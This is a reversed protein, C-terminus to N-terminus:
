TIEPNASKAPLRSVQGRGCRHWRCALWRSTLTVAAPKSQVADPCRGAPRRMRCAAARCDPPHRAAQRGAQLAHCSRGTVGRGAQRSGAAGVGRLQRGLAGHRRVHKLDRPHLRVVLERQAGDRGDGVAGGAAHQGHTRAARAEGQARRAAAAARESTPLLHERTTVRAVPQMSITLTPHRRRKWAPPPPTATMQAVSRAAAHRQRRRHLAIHVM